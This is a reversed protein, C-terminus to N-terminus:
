EATVERRQVREEVANRVQTYRGRNGAPHAIQAATRRVAFNHGCRRSM